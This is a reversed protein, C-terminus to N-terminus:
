TGGCVYCAVEKKVRKLPRESTFPSLAALIDEVIEIDELSCFRRAVRVLGTKAASLDKRDVASVFANLVKRELGLASIDVMAQLYKALTSSRSDRAQANQLAEMRILIANIEATRDSNSSAMMNVLLDIKDEASIGRGPGGM